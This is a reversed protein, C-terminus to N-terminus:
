RPPPPMAPANPSVGTARRMAEDLDVPPYQQIVHRVTVTPVAPDTPVTYGKLFQEYTLPTGQLSWYPRYTPAVAVAAVPVAAPVVPAVPVVPTASVTTVSTEREVVPPNIVTRPATATPAVTTQVPPVAATGSLERRRAALYTPVARVRAADFSAMAAEQDRAFRAAAQLRANNPDLRLANDYAQRSITYYVDDDHAPLDMAVDHALEGLIIWDTLNRPDAKLAQELQRIAVYRDIQHSDIVVPSRVPAAPVKAKVTETEVTPIVTNQARAAAPLQAAALLPAALFLLGGRTREFPFRTHM